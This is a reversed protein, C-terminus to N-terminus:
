APSSQPQAVRVVAGRPVSVTVPGEIVEVATNSPIASLRSDTRAAPHRPAPSRNPSPLAHSTPSTSAEAEYMESEWRQLSYSPALTAVRPVTNRPVKREQSKARYEKVRVESRNTPKKESRTWRGGGQGGAASWVKEFDKKRKSVYHESTTHHKIPTGHRLSDGVVSTGKLTRKSLALEFAATLHANRSRIEDFTLSPANTANARWNLVRSNAARARNIEERPNAVNANKTPQNLLRPQVGGFGIQKSIKLHYEYDKTETYQEIPRPPPTKARENLYRPNAKWKVPSQNFTITPQFTPAPVPTPAKRPSLYRPGVGPCPNPVFYPKYRLYEPLETYASDSRVYDM